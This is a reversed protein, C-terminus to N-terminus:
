EGALQQTTQLRRLDASPTELLQNVLMPLGPNRLRSHANRKIVPILLLTGNTILVM